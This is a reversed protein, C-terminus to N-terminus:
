EPHRKSPPRVLTYCMIQVGRKQVMHRRLLDVQSLEGIARNVTERALGTIAAITAQKPYADMEKGAFLVLVMYVRVASGSLARFEESDIADWTVVGFRPLIGDEVLIETSGHKRM